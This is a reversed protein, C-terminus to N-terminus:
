FPLDDDEVASAQVAPQQKQVASSVPKKPPKVDIVKNYESGDDHTQVIIELRVQSGILEELEFEFDRPMPGVGVKIAKAWTMLKSKAGFSQTCWGRLEVGAYREPDKIRFRFEYQLKEFKDSETISVVEAAYEGMPLLESRIVKIRPM